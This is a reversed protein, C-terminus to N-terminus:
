LRQTQIHYFEGSVFFKGESGSARAIMVEGRSVSFTAVDTGGMFSAVLGHTISTFTINDTGLTATSSNFHRNTGTGAAGGTVGVAIGRIKESTDADAARVWAGAASVYLGNEKADTQDKVLVRSAATTLGDITQEGTLSINATTAVAVNIVWNLLNPPANKLALLYSGAVVVDGTRRMAKVEVFGRGFAAIGTSTPSTGFVNARVKSIGFGSRTESLFNKVTIGSAADVLDVECATAHKNMNVVVSSSLNGGVIKFQNYTSGGVFADTQAAGQTSLSPKIIEARTIITNGSELYVNPRDLVEGNQEFHPSQITARVRKLFMGGGNNGELTIGNFSIESNSDGTNSYYFAWESHNSGRFGTFVAGNGLSNGVMYVGYPAVSTKINDLTASYVYARSHWCAFTASVFRLDRFISGQELGDVQDFCATALNNGDIGFGQLNCAVVSSPGDMKIVSAVATQAKFITRFPGAGRIGGGTYVLEQSTPYTGSPALLEAGVSAVYTLAAQIYPGADFTSTRARIAAHEAQPIFDLVSVIDSGKSRLDRPVAGSADQRFGVLTAGKGADTSALDATSALSAAVASGGATREYRTYTEPTTGIAVRFFQGTTTAAEGAAISAYAPGSFEEAFDANTASVGGWYKSGRSGVAGGVVDTATDDNAYRSALAAAAAAEGAKTTATVAAALTEASAEITTGPILPDIADGIAGGVSDTQVVRYTVTSDLYIDPYKGASNAVVPNSLETTLSVNSYIPTKTTTTTLYFYLRGGSIAV